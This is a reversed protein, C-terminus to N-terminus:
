EAKEKPEIPLLDLRHDIVHTFRGDIAVFHVTHHVDFIVLSLGDDYPRVDVVEYGGRTREQWHSRWNYPAPENM